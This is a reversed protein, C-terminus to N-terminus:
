PRRLRRPRRMRRKRRPTAKPKEPAPPPPSAPAVTASAETRGPQHRGPDTSGQHQHQPRSLHHRARLARDGHCEQDAPEPAQLPLTRGRGQFGEVDRFRAEAACRGNEPGVRAYQGPGRVGPGRATGPRHAGWACGEAADDLHLPVAAAPHAAARTIRSGRPRERRREACNVRAQTHLKGTGNITSDVTVDLVDDPRTNFGAVHVNLPDVNVAIAPTVQRYEAAIKLGEVAIDPASVIWPSSEGGSAKAHVPPATSAPAAPAAPSAALDLLNVRGQEDVWAKLDGGNLAVRAVDVTHKALDVRTEEVTIKSLKM